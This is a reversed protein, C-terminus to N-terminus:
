AQQEVLSALKESFEQPMSIAKPVGDEGFRCCVATVEGRAVDQGDRFFRFGYTVIRGGLKAVRVEVNVVDEFRVSRLYDCRASVRPWGVTVRGDQRSVSLGLSRLMEHEAEEMWTFFAGFHMIGAADTQHFEVRRKTTFPTSM